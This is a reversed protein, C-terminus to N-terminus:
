LNCFNPPTSQPYEEGYKSQFDDQLRHLEALRREKYEKWDELEFEDTMDKTMFFHYDLNNIEWDIKGEDCRREYEELSEDDRQSFWKKKFTAEGRAILYARDTLEQNLQAEEEPANIHKYKVLMKNATEQAGKLGDLNFRDWKKESEAFGKEMKKLGKDWNDYYRKLFDSKRAQFERGIRDECNKIQNGRKTILAAGVATSIFAILIYSAVGIILIKKWNRKIKELFDNRKM